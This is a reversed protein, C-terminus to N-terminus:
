GTRKELERHKTRSKPKQDMESAEHTEAVKDRMRLAVKVPKHLNRADTAKMRAGSELRHKDIARRMYIYIYLHM